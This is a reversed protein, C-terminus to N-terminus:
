SCAPPGKLMSAATEIRGRLGAKDTEDLWCAEVGDLAVDIMESWGWRFARAVAAYEAGLNLGIFAPDDTNVTALLGAARMQPYTHDELRAFSNSILVNSTPCVTIPIREAAMRTTLETDHLVPLGHDIREVGLVDLAATIAAAPSNEGQHATLRFGASRARDYAPRYTVPDIGLETSDMGVGIVREMGRAGSRRLAVLADVFELGAAPGFARDMDAILLCRADSEAEAATFGEDLGAVIDALDLGAALNRAPTFFSERHVVGHAAGDILGEYALRAWDDRTVLTSQGLWFVRLFGDLSDYRYLEDLDTTPLDIRNRRALEILTGPRLTGETHCHLEVKPLADLAADLASPTM